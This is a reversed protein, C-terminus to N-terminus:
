ENAGYNGKVDDKGTVYLKNLCLIYVIPSKKFKGGAQGQTFKIGFSGSIVTM